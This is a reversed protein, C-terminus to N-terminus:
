RADDNLTGVGAHTRTAAIEACMRCGNTCPRRALLAAAHRPGDHADFYEVLRAISPEEGPRARDFLFLRQSSPVGDIPWYVGAIKERPMGAMVPPDHIDHHCAGHSKLYEWAESETRYVPKVTRREGALAKSGVLAAGLAGLWSFFNRRQM